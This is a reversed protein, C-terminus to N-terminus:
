AALESMVTNLPSPPGLILDTANNSKCGGMGVTRPLAVKRWPSSRSAVGNMVEGDGGGEM